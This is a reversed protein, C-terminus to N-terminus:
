EIEYGVYVLGDYLVKKAPFSPATKSLEKEPLKSERVGGEFSEVSSLSCKETLSLDDNFFPFFLELEEDTEVVDDTEPESSFNDLDEDQSNTPNYPDAPRQSDKFSDCGCYIGEEYEEESSM